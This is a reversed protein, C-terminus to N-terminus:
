RNLYTQVIWAYEYGYSIATKRFNEASKRNEFNGVRICFQKGIEVIRVTETFERRAKEAAQEIIDNKEASVIQVSFISGKEVGNNEISSIGRFREDGSQISENESVKGVLVVTDVATGAIVVSDERSISTIAYNKETNKETMNKFATCGSTVIFVVAFAIVIKFM